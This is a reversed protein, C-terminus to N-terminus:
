KPLADSYAKVAPLAMFREIYEKVKPHTDLSTVPVYDIHGRLFNRLM